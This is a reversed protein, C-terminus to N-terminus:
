TRESQNGHVEDINDESILRYKSLFEDEKMSFYSGDFVIYDGPPVFSHKGNTAIVCGVIKDKIMDVLISIIKGNIGMAIFKPYKKLLLQNKNVRWALVEKDMRSYRAM